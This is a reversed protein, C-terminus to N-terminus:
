YGAAAEATRISATSPAAFMKGLHTRLCKRFFETVPSEGHRRLEIRLIRIDERVESRWYERSAYIISPM